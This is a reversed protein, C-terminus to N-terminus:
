AGSGRRLRELADDPDRAAGDREAGRGSACRKLADSAMRHYAAFLGNDGRRYFARVFCVGYKKALDAPIWTPSSYNM